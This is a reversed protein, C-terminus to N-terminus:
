ASPDHQLLEILAKTVKIGAEDDGSQFRALAIVAQVRVSSERDRTRKSLGDRLDDFLDDSNYAVEYELAYEIEGLSNMALAILQCVRLRVFKEKADIGRLLHRMFMEVFRGAALSEETEEDEEAEQKVVVSLVIM